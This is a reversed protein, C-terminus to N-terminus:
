LRQFLMRYIPLGAQRCQMERLSQVGYPNSEVVGAEGM